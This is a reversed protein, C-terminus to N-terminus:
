FSTQPIARLTRSLARVPMGPNLSYEAVEELALLLEDFWDCDDPRPAALLSELVEVKIELNKDTTKM